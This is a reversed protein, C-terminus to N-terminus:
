ELMQIERQINEWVGKSLEDLQEDTLAYKSEEVEREMENALNIAYEPFRELLKLIEDGEMEGYFTDFFGLDTGFCLIAFRRRANIDKHHYDTLCNISM